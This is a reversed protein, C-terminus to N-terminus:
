EPFEAVCAAAAKQVSPQEKRILTKLASLKRKEEAVDIAVPTEVTRHDHDICSYTSGDPKTCIEVTPVLITQRHIAYGRALNGEIRTVDRQAQRLAKSAKAICQKQPTACAALTLLLTVLTIHRFM